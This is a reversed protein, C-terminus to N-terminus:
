GGILESALDLLTKIVFTAVPLDPLYDILESALDLLTKIQRV